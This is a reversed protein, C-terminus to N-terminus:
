WGHEGKLDKIVKRKGWVVRHNVRQRGEFRQSLPKFLVACMARVETGKVQGIKKWLM